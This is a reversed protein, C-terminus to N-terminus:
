SYNQRKGPKAMIQDRMVVIRGQEDSPSPGFVLDYPNKRATLFKLMVFMGKMQQGDTKITAEIKAPVRL